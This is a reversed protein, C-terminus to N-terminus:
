WEAFISLARVPVVLEINAFNPFNDLVVLSNNVM